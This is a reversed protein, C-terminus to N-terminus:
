SPFPSFCFCFFMYSSSLAYHNFDAASRDNQFTCLNIQNGVAGQVDLWLRGYEQRKMRWQIHWENKLYEHDSSFFSHMQQFSCLNFLSSSMKEGYISEESWLALWVKTAPFTTSTIATYVNWTLGCALKKELLFSYLVNLLNMFSLASYMIMYHMSVSQSNNGDRNWSVSYSAIKREM